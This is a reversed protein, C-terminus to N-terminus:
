EPIGEYEGHICYWYFRDNTDSPCIYFKYGIEHPEHQEHHMYVLFDEMVLFNKDSLLGAEMGPCEGQRMTILAEVKVRWRRPFTTGTM